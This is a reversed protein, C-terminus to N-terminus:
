GALLIREVRCKGLFAFFLVHQVRNFPLPVVTEGNFFTIELMALDDLGVFRILMRRGLELKRRKLLLAKALALFCPVLNGIGDQFAVHIGRAMLFRLDLVLLTFHPLFFLRFAFFPLPGEEVVMLTLWEKVLQGLRHALLDLSFLRISNPSKIRLFRFLSM